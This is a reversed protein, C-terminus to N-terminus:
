YAILPTLIGYVKCSIHFNQQYFSGRSLAGKLFWSYNNFTRTKLVNNTNSNKRYSAFM